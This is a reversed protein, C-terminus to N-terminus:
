GRAFRSVCGILERVPGLLLFWVERPVQICEEKPELRPVLKSVMSCVYRPQLSCREEPVKHVIQLSDTLPNLPNHRKSNPSEEQM